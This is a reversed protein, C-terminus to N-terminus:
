HLPCLAASFVLGYLNLGNVYFYCTRWLRQTNTVFLVYILTLFEKKTALNGKTALTNHCARWLFQKIKEPVKIKWLLNWMESTAVRSSTPGSHIHTNIEQIRRYGSKVNYIGDKTHPWYIEANVMSRSIPTQIAEIASASSLNNKLMNVNWKPQDGEMLDGITVASTSPIVQAMNRSNLWRVRDIALSCNRGIAWRRSQLLQDWEHLISQWVWSGGRKFSCNWFEQHQCYISNLTYAWYANPSQHLRWAQKALLSSNQFHFNKFGM